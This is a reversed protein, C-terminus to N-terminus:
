STLVAYMMMLDARVCAGFRRPARMHYGCTLGACLARRCDAVNAWCWSVCHCDLSADTESPRSSGFDAGEMPQTLLIAHRRALFFILAAADTLSRAVSRTAGLLTGPSPHLIRM